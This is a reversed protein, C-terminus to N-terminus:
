VVNDEEFENPFRKDEKILNGIAKFQPHDASQLLQFIASETTTLHCGSVVFLTISQNTCRPITCKKNNSLSRIM